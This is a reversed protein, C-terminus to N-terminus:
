RFNSTFSLCHHCCHMITSLIYSVGSTLLACTLGICLSILTEHILIQTSDSKDIEGTSMARVIITTSQNGINGSLGSLLPMFSIAIPIQAITSDFGAILTSALYQGLLTILLWPTRAKYAKTYSRLVLDTSSTDDEDDVSIGSSQYIDQTTEEEIVEVVDDITIIGILQKNKNTM